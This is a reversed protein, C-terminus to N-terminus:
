TSSLCNLKQTSVSVDWKRQRLLWQIWKKQVLQKNSWVLYKDDATCLGKHQEKQQNKM